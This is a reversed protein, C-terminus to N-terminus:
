IFVCTNAVVVGDPLRRAYIEAWWPEPLEGPLVKKCNFSWYPFVLELGPRSWAWVGAAPNPPVEITVARKWKVASYSIGNGPAFSWPSQRPIILFM